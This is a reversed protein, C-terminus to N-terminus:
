QSTLQWDAFDSYGLHIEAFWFFIHMFSQLQHTQLLDAPQRDYVFFAHRYAYQRHVIQDQMGFYALQAAGAVQRRFLYSLDQLTNIGHAVWHYFGLCRHVLRFCRMAGSKAPEELNLLLPQPPLIRVKVMWM